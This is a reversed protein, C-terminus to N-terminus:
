NQLNGSKIRCKCLQFRRDFPDRKGMSRGNPAGHSFIPKQFRAPVMRPGTIAGHSEMKKLFSDEDSPLIPEFRAKFKQFILLQKMPKKGSCSGCRLLNPSVLFLVM